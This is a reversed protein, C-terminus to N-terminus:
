SRTDAKENIQTGKKSKMIVRRLLINYVDYESDSDSLVFAHISICLTGTSTCFTQLRPAARAPVGAEVNIHIWTGYNEGWGAGAVQGEWGSRRPVECM